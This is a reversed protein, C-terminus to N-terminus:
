STAPHAPITPVEPPLAEEWGPIQHRTTAPLVLIAM